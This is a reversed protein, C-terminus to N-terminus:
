SSTIIVPTGDQQRAKYKNITPKHQNINLVAINILDVKDYIQRVNVYCYRKCFIGSWNM